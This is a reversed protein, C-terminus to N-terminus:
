KGDYSVRPDVYASLVDGALNALLGIMVPLVLTGLIIGIDRDQFGRFSATAAGPVNFVLEVVYLTV